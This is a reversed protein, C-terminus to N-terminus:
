MVITFVRTKGAQALEHLTDAIHPSAHAYGVVVPLELGRAKLLKELAKAQELTLRNYPSAGGIKEYQQAVLQLREEPIDRGKVVDQLFPVVDEPKEPGGFGILLVADYQFTNM